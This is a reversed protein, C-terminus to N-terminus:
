YKTRHIAEKLERQFYESNFFNYLKTNKLLHLTQKRVANNYINLLMDIAVYPKALIKNMVIDNDIENPNDIVYYPDSTDWYKMPPDSNIPNFYIYKLKCIDKYLYKQKATNRLLIEGSTLNYSNYGNDLYNPVRKSNNYAYECKDDWNKSCREAMYVQCEKCYPGLTNSSIGNNFSTEITDFLCTSLPSVKNINGIKNIPYYNNNCSM